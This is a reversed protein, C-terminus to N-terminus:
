KLKKEAIAKAKEKAREKAREKAKKIKEAKKVDVIKKDSIKKVDKVKQEDLKKVDEAKKADNLKKIDPKSLDSTIKPITNASSSKAMFSFPTYSNSGDYELIMNYQGDVGWHYKLSTDVEFDFSGDIPDFVIPFGVLNSGNPYTVQGILQAKPHRDVIPNIIGAVHIKDGTQYEKKDMTFSVNGFKSPINNDVIFYTESEFGDYLAKVNYKGNQWNSSTSFSYFGGPIQDDFCPYNNGGFIAPSTGEEVIKNNQDFLKIEVNGGKQFKSPVHVFLTIEDNYKKVPMNTYVTLPSNENLEIKLDGVNKPFLEDYFTTEGPFRITFLTSEGPKIHNSRFETSGCRSDIRISHAVNDDNIFAIKDGPHIKDIFVDKGPIPSSWKSDYCSLTTWCAGQSSGPMIHIEPTKSLPSQNIGSLLQIISVSNSQSNVVYILDNYLAMKKADRQADYNRLIKQTKLDIERIGDDTLAYLISNSSNIKLDKVQGGIYISNIKEFTNLDYIILDNFLSVYMQNLEPNILLKKGSISTKNIINLSNQDIIILGDDTFAFLQDRLKTIERPHYAEIVSTITNSSTDVVSIKMGEPHTIYVRQFKDDITMQGPNRDTEITKLFKDTKGDIISLGEPSAVYIKNNRVDLISEYPSNAIRIKPIATNTTLDIVSVNGSDYNAVYAKKTIENIIISEPRSGVSIVSNSSSFALNVFSVLIIVAFSFIIIKNM